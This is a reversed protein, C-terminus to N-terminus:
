ILFNEKKYLLGQGGGRLIKGLFTLEQELDERQIKQLKHISRIEVIRHAVAIVRYGQRTYEELVQTFNEPVPRCGVGGAFSSLM